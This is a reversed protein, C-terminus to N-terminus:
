MGNKLNLCLWDLADILDGGYHTTNHMAEEIQKHQFGASSLCTYVDQFLQFYQPSGGLTIDIFYTLNIIFM